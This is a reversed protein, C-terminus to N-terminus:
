DRNGTPWIIGHKLLLVSRTGDIIVGWTKCCIVVGVTFVAATLMCNVSAKFWLFYSVKAALFVWLLQTASKGVRVEGPRVKGVLLLLLGLCDGIPDLRIRFTTHRDCRGANRCFFRKLVLFSIPFIVKLVLMQLFYCKYFSVNTFLLIKLFYCKYFTANTFLLM